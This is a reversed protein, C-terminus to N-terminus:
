ASDGGFALGSGDGPWAANDLLRVDGLRAAIIARGPREPNWDSLTEADRIEAYDIGLGADLLAGRMAEAAPDPDDSLRAARLARPMAAAALRHEPALFRNRSSMALGDDERVTPAPIVEIGLQDREAMQRIVRYQQWDKEGFIAASPRVLEFLRRVVLCVGEFHGPRFRDELGQDQAAAPLPPPQRSEPSPFVEDVEPAFVAEAGHEVCVGVDEDLDRPYREYDSPEDFQTPNVFVSVICAGPTESQRALEAGRRILDAHGAHLGGMTPVLVCSQGGRAGRWAELESRTRLLDM